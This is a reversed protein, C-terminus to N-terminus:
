IEHDPGDAVHPCSRVQFTAVQVPLHQFYVIYVPSEFLPHLDMFHFLDVLVGHVFKWSM